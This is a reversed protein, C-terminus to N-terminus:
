NKKKMKKGDREGKDINIELLEKKDRERGQLRSRIAGDHIKWIKLFLFFECFIM